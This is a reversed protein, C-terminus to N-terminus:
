YPRTPESIHILSLYNNGIFLLSGTRGINERRSLKTPDISKYIVICKDPNLKYRKLLFNRTFNSNFIINDAKNLSHSETFNRIFHRIFNKISKQNIQYLDPSATYYDNVQTITTDGIKGFYLYPFANNFHVIIHNEPFENIVMKAKRWLKYYVLSRIYTKKVTIIHADPNNCDSTIIKFNIGDKKFFKHILRAFTAPGTKTDDFVSTIFIILPPKKSNLM